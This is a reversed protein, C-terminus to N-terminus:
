VRATASEVVRNINARAPGRLENHKTFSGSVLNAIKDATEAGGPCESIFTFRTPAAVKFAWKRFKPEFRYTVQNKTYEKM